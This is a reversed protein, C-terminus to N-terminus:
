FDDEKDWDDLNEQKIPNEKIYKAKQDAYKKIITIKLKTYV